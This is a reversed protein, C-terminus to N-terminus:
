IVIESNTPKLCLKHYSEGLDNEITKVPYYKLEQDKNNNSKMYTRLKLFEQKKRFLRLDNEKRKLICQKFSNSHM